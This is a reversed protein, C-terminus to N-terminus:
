PTAPEPVSIPAIAVPAQLLVDVAHTATLGTADRVLVVILNNGPNLEATASFPVSKLPHTADGGGAYAIKRDGEYIIVDRVGIDDTAVGSITVTRDTTTSGPSRTVTINPPARTGAPALSGVPVVIRESEGYYTYFGAKSVSAYDYNESDRLSLDLPITGDPPAVNVTFAISATQRAGVPLALIEVMADTLDVTKRLSKDKHVSIALKGGPGTGENAVDVLLRVTEGVEVFGNGNGGVKDDFRWNWTYRPLGPATTTVQIVASSLPNKNADSLAVDVDAIENPYGGPVKVKTEYTRTEGPNIKGLYFETGDLIDNGRESSLRAVTQCLPRADTNTVALRVATLEGAALSIGAHSASELALAFTVAARDPNACATWDIKQERFAAEIRGAEARTRAAVVTAADKLVDARRGGHAAVLVDRALMVEFDTRVDKKDSRPQDASEPVLYRLSYAPQTEIEEANPFARSLDSERVQRDRGFLSIRPGSMTKFEKLERPPAVLTRKLEIDAPIGVSQIWHDGPTLYRAVTLKLQSEREMGYLEQVSGKGFSREGIIVAREQNRLAGAVIEAASASSGTMLVAMPYAPETGSERADSEKRDAGNRGVTSVITGDALFKDSVAVAQHLYGGPNDRMDLVIGKVGGPGADRALKSLEETLQAEVQGHFSDIRVYGVNGDLLQSWVRGTKIEARVITYDKPQEGGERTITLTVSTGPRGRMKDVAEDIEMNITGEGDIRTIEDGPKLGAKWAPTDELPYTITLRGDHMDITIGLGGFEGDNDERMKKASDPPMLMSHPDLTSLMGNTLTYEVEDLKIENTDLHDELIQAVRRLEATLAESSEMKRTTLVTTYERVSVHVRQGDVRLVVEPIEREVAALAAKYMADYDIRDPDVYQLQVRGATRGLISLNSLSYSTTFDSIREALGGQRVFADMRSGGPSDGITAIPTGASAAVHYGALVLSGIGTLVALHRVIRM